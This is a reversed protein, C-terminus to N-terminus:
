VGFDGPAAVAAPHALGDSGRRAIALRALNWAADAIQGDSWRDENSAIYSGLAHAALLDLVPDNAKRRVMMLDAMNWAAEAIQVESWRSEHASSAANYAGLAHAAFFDRTTATAALDRGPSTGDM